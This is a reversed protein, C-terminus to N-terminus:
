QSKANWWDDSYNKGDIYEHREQSNIELELYEDLTYYEKKDGQLIM